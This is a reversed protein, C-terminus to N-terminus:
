KQPERSLCHKNTTSSRQDSRQIYNTGKTIFPHIQWKAFYCVCGKMDLPAYQQPSPSATAILLRHCLSPRRVSCPRSVNPAIVRHIDVYINKHPSWYNLVVTGDVSLSTKYIKVSFFNKQYADRPSAMSVNNKMEPRRTSTHPTDM